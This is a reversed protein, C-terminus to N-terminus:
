TSAVGPSGMQTQSFVKLWGDGMDNRLAEIKKRFAEADGARNDNAEEVLITPSEFVSASVRKRRAASRPSVTASGLTKRGLSGFTPAADLTSLGEPIAEAFGSHPVYETHHRSHRSKPSTHIPLDSPPTLTREVRLAVPPAAYVKQLPAFSEHAPLAGNGDPRMGQSPKLIEGLGIRVHATSGDSHEGDGELDVIRKIKKRRPKAGIASLSPSNNNSQSTSSPPSITTSSDVATFSPSDIGNVAVAPPSVAM